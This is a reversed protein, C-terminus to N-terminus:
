LVVVVIVVVLFAWDAYHFVSLLSSYFHAHPLFHVTIQPLNEM